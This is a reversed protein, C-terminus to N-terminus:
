STNCVKERSYMTSSRTSRIFLFPTRFAAHSEVVSGIDDNGFRIDDVRALMQVKTHAEIKGRQFLLSAVITLAKDASSLRGNHTDKLKSFLCRIDVVLKERCVIALPKVIHCGTALAQRMLLLIDNLTTNGVVVDKIGNVQIKLADIGALLSQILKAPLLGVM